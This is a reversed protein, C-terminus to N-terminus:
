IEPNLNKRDMESLEHHFVPINYTVLERSINKIM